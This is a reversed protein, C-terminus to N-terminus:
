LENTMEPEYVHEGFIEGRAVIEFDRHVSQIYADDQTDLAYQVCYLMHVVPLPVPMAHDTCYDLVSIVYDM